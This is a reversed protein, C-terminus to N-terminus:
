TGVRVRVGPDGFFLFWMADNRRIMRDALKRRQIADLDKVTQGKGRLRNMLNSVESAIAASRDALDRLGYASATRAVLTREILTLMPELRPNYLGDPVPAAPDDFGHLWATDVHGVFGIPGEPNALLRKPVAAVFPQEATVKTAGGTWQEFTSTAPTGYGWCAFQVVVAGPWVPGDPLDTATLLWDGVAAGPEHQCCWGGNVARQIEAGDAIGAMMGHTATFVLGVSADMTDLLATKTAQAGVTRSVTFGAAREVAAAIPEALFRASYYTPDSPGGDTAFVVSSPSAFPASDAEHAIVKAVYADLDASRDFDVRGVSAGASALTAQLEFPLQTPDGALLLYKPRDNGRGLYAADIWDARDNEDGGPYRLADAASTERHALLPELQALRDEAGPDNTAVVVAWGVEKPDGPDPAEIPPFEDFTWSPTIPTPQDALVEADVEVRAALDTFTVPVALPEGDPWRLGLPLALDSM